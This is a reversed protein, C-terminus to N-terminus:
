RPEAPLPGNSEPLVANIDNILTSVPVHRDRAIRGIPRRDGHEIGLVERIVEIDVHHSRAIYGAPMWPEVPMYQHGSWYIYFAATRVGFFVTACLALAFAIVLLRNTRWLSRILVTM